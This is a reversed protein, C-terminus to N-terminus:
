HKWNQARERKHNNQMANNYCRNLNVLVAQAISAGEERDLKKWYWATQTFYFTLYYTPAGGGGEGPRKLILGFGM